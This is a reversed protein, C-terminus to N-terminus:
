LTVMIKVIHNAATDGFIESGEGDGADYRCVDCEGSSVRVCGCGSEM